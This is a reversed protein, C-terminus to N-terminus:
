VFLDRESRRSRRVPDPHTSRDISARRGASPWVRPTETNPSKLAVGYRYGTAAVPGAWEDEPSSAAWRAVPRRQPTTVLGVRSGARSGISTAKPMATCARSVTAATPRGSRIRAPGTPGRRAEAEASAGVAAAPSRASCPRGDPRPMGCRSRPEVQVGYQVLEQRRQQGLDSRCTSTVCSTRSFTSTAVRARSTIASISRGSIMRSEVPAIAESVRSPTRICLMEPSSAIARAM